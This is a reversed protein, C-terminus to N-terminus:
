MANGKQPLETPLDNSLSQHSFDSRQTRPDIHFVSSQWRLVSMLYFFLCVFVFFFLFKYTSKYCLLSHRQCCTTLADSAATPVPFETKRVEANGTREVKKKKKQMRKLGPLSTDHSKSSHTPSTQRARIHGGRKVPCCMDPIIQKCQLWLWVPLLIAEVSIAM